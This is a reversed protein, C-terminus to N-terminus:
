KFTDESNNCLLTTLCFIARSLWSEKPRLIPHHRKLELPSISNHGSSLVSALSKIGHSVALNYKFLQKREWNRCAHHLAIWNRKGNCSREEVSLSCNWDKNNKKRERRVSFELQKWVKCAWGLMVPKGVRCSFAFSLWTLILLYQILSDNLSSNWFWFRLKGILNLDVFLECHSYWELAICLSYIICCFSSNQSGLDGTFGDCTTTDWVPMWRTGNVPYENAASTSQRCSSRSCLKQNLKM